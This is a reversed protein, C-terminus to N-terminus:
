VKVHAYGDDKATEPRIVESANVRQRLVRVYQPDFKGAVGGFVFPVFPTPGGVELTKAQEGVVFLGRSGFDGNPQPPREAMPFGSGNRHGAPGSRFRESRDHPAAGVTHWSKQHGFRGGDVGRASGCGFSEFTEYDPM